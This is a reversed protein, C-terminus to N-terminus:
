FSDMSIDVILYPFHQSAWVASIHRCLLPILQLIFFHMSALGKIPAVPVQVTVGTCQQM